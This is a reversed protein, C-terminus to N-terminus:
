HTRYVKSLKQMHLMATGQEHVHENPHIRSPIRTPEVRIREADEFEDTGSIVIREGPKCATSSRSPPGPQDRRIEIPRREAIGDRVV